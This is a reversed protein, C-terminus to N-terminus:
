WDWEPNQVVIPNIRTEREPIRFTWYVSQPNAVTHTRADIGPLNAGSGIRTMTEGRRKLDFFRHGEGWLEIRRQMKLEALLEEPTMTTLTAAIAGGDDIRANILDQVLTRARAIDTGAMLLAEAENLMMEAGRMYVLDYATGFPNHFKDYALASGGHHNMLEGIRVDNASDTHNVLLQNINITYGWSTTQMGPRNSIRLWRDAWGSNEDQPVFAAWMWEPNVVSFGEMFQARSMLPVGAGALNAFYAAQTWNHMDLYVRSLLGHMVRLSAFTKDHAAAVAGVGPEGMLRVAELLDGEIQQYSERVTSRAVGHVSQELVLPIGLEDPSHHYAPAYMRVLMHFFHARYTLAQATLWNRQPDSINQVDPMISLLQNLPSIIQWLRNWPLAVAWSTESIAHSPGNQVWFSLQCNAGLRFLDGGLFDLMDTIVTEGSLAQQPAGTPDSAIFRSRNVGVLLTRADAFSNTLDALTVRDTPSTDLFDQSCSTTKLMLAAFLVILISLKKM